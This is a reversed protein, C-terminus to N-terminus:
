SRVFFSATSGAVVSAPGTKIVSLDAQSGVTIPVESVHDSTDVDQQLYAATDVFAVNRLTGAPFDAPVTLNVTFTATAGPALEPIDCVRLQTIVLSVPDRYPRITCPVGPPATFGSILEPRSVGTSDFVRDSAPILRATSPGSNTVVVTYTATTGAAISAPGTKVISVDVLDEILDLDTATNNTEDPDGEGATTSVTATNEAQGTATAVITAQATFVVANAAGPNLTVLTNINGTQSGTATCSSTGSATCTWTVGSFIAPDFTDVVRASPATAPGANSITITYTTAQGATVSTVGDTKTISLDAVPAALSTTVRATNNAPKPDTTATSANAVKVIPDASTDPYDPPITMVVSLTQSAGAALACGPFTICQGTFDTVILGAPAPDTVLVNVADSPGNNRVVISYTVNTGRQASPPGTKTVQVDAQVVIPVSANATNNTPALDPVAPPPLVSATNSLPGAPTNAPLTGTVTYV